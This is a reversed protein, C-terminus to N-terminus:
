RGVAEYQWLGARRLVTALGFFALCWVAQVLLGGILMDGEVRGLMVALPFAYVYQFPMLRAASQLPDPLLEIPILVGGLVYVVIEYLTAAGTVDTLWFSTFGVALKMLLCLLYALVLSLLLAPVAALALSPPELAPRLVVIAALLLPTVM